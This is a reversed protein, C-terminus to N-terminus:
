SIADLLARAAPRQEFKNGGQLLAKLVSLAERKRGEALMIQADHFKLQENQPALELARDISRRAELIQGNKLYAIAMTDLISATQPSLSFAREALVLSQGPDTEVLHWALNNLAVVNNTDIEVIARYQEIAKPINRKIVFLEALKERAAIDQEHTHLWTQILQVAVLTKGMAHTHMALSLLNHSTPSHKYMEDLM